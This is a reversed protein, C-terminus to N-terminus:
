WKPNVKIINRYSSLFPIRWGVVEASYTSDVHLMSQVDSSNFKGFFIDDTNEFVETDTFVLYKSTVHLNEGSGSSEVIREKDTVTFEVTTDSNYYAIGVVIGVVIILFVINKM